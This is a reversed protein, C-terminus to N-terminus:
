KLFRYAFLTYVKISNFFDQIEIYENITHAQKYSGPGFLITEGCMGNNRFYEADSSAPFIFYIPNQNYCEKVVNYFENLKSSTDWNKFYSAQTYHHIELSIYIEESVGNKSEKVPYGLDEILKQLADLVLKPTQTHFIRFNIIAECKDPIVNEKIGSHLMTFTKTIHTVSYLLSKINPNKNVFNEYDKESSFNLSIMDELKELPIPPDYGAIFDDIKGLNQIIEGMIDIPNKGLFPLSAHSSIGYITIKIQLHGKEGVMIAKPLPNFGTYEGVVAFDCKLDKLKNEVCWKTGLFGGTEEDSVANLILNGTLKVNLQKLVKLAITMAALGGKMDTTGRGFVRLGIRKGSFPSIEWESESGVPVTDMHGNYLLNKRNINDNLFAILNGRNQDFSFIKSEINVQRLYEQIKLAVDKENGPPNCSNSTILESFFDLYEEKNREIENLLVSEPLVM